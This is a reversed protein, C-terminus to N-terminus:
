REYISLFNNKQCKWLSRGKGKLNSNKMYEDKTMYWFQIINYNEKVFAFKM